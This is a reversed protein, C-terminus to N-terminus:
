SPEARTLLSEANMRPGLEAYGVKLSLGASSGGDEASDAPIQAVLDKLRALIEVVDKRPTNPMM